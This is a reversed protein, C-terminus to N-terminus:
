KSKYSYDFLNLFGGFAVMLVYSLLLSVFVFAILDNFDIM